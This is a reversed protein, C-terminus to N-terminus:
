KLVQRRTFLKILLYGAVFDFSIYLWVYFINNIVAYIDDLVMWAMGLIPGWVILSAHTFIFYFFIIIFFEVLCYYFPVLYRDSDVLTKHVLFYTLILSVIFVVLLYKYAFSYNFPVDEDGFMSVFAFLQIPVSGIYLFVSRICFIELVKVWRKQPSKNIQTSKLIVTTTM